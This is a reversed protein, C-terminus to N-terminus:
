IGMYKKWDFKWFVWVMIKTANQIVERNTKRDRASDGGKWAHLAPVPSCNATQALPLINNAWVAFQEGTGARWSHLPPSKLIAIKGHKAM